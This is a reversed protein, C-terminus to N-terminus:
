QENRSQTKPSNTSKKILKERAEIVQAFCYKVKEHRKSGPRKLSKIVNDYGLGTMEAVLSGDGIKKKALIEKLEM